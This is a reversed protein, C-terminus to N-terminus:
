FCFIFKHSAKFIHRLYVLYYTCFLTHLIHVWPISFLSAHQFSVYSVIELFFTPTKKYQEISKIRGMNSILHKESYTSKRWEENPLDEITDIYFYKGFVQKYLQRLNINEYIGNKRKLRYNWNHIKCFQQRKTDYVKGNSFMIYQSSFGYEFLSVSKQNFFQNTFNIYNM